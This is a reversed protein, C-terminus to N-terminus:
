DGRWGDGGEELAARVEVDRLYKRCRACDCPTFGKGHEIFLLRLLRENEAEMAAIRTALERAVVHPDRGYYPEMPDSM